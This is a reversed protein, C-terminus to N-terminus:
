ALVTAAALARLADPDHRRAFAAFGEDPAGRHALYAKLLGEVHVPVDDAKLDSYLLKAIAADTGYGGGVHLHYGEVQDGEENITM